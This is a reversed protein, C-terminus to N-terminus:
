FTSYIHIPNNKYYAWETWIFSYYRNYFFFPFRKQFIFLPVNLLVHTRHRGGLLFAGNAATRRGGDTCKGGATHGCRTYWVRKWITLIEDTGRAGIATVTMENDNYNSNDGNEVSWAERPFRESVVRELPTIYKNKFWTNANFM